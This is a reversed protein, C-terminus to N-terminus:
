IRCNECVGKLEVPGDVLQFNQQKAIKLLAKASPENNTETTQHCVGCVLMSTAHHTHGCAIHSCLTYKQESDIRHIINKDIFYQIVRYVTPPEASDRLKKLQDLVEYASLPTNSEIFIGLVTSRLDTLKVSPNSLPIQNLFDKTSSRM